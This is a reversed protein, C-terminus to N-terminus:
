SNSNTSYFIDHEDCCEKLSEAMFEQYQDPNGQSHGRSDSIVGSWIWVEGIIKNHKDGVIMYYCSDEESDHCKWIQGPKSVKM